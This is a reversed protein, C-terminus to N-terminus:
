FIPTVGLAAVLQKYAADMAAYVEEDFTYEYTLAINGIMHDVPAPMIDKYSPFMHPDSTKIGEIFAAIDEAPCDPLESKFTFFMIAVTGEKDMYGCAEYVPMGSWYTEHDQVWTWESKTFVGAETFYDVINQATWDNIDAPYKSMDIGTDSTNGTTNNTEPSVGNGATSGTEPNTTSCAAMSVVMMLALVIALLKKM